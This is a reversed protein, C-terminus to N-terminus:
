AQPMPAPTGAAAPMLPTGPASGPMSGPQSGAYYAQESPTFRLGFISRVKFRQPNPRVMCCLPFWEPMPAMGPLLIKYAEHILTGFGLYLAICGTM